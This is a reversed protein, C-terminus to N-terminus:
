STQAHAALMGQNSEGKTGVFSWIHKRHGQQGYTVSVGDVYNTELTYNSQNAIYFSFASLFELNSGLSKVFVHNYLM